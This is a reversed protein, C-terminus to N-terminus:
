LTWPKRYTPFMMASAEEDGIVVEADPDWNVKRGTYIAANCLHGVSASRHAVEAPTITEERSRICELFNSIHNKSKYLHIENDGTVHELIKPDSAETTGRNVYIWGNEGIWKTGGANKSSVNIVTGNAYICNVDYETPADWLSHIDPIVGTGEASVPGTRDFGLGWHAIDVHHGCWDMIRGGGYAMIWRWNKHVRAPCYPAVEAPGLWRDYDLIAPPPGFATLNGTDAYDSYGDHLGVEVRHVKGIHGNIVLESTHHFNEVSRQWSGTQWICNNKEIADVMARGEAWSHSFPKEGYMDFGKEAAAIAPIAHWHDPLAISVADIPERDYMEEFNNYTKCDQNEYTANIMKQSNALHEQDVDCVAIVRCNKDKLFGELNNTGQWGVGLAAVNIIDNPGPYMRANRTTTCAPLLIPAAAATAAGKLFGRRTFTKKMSM